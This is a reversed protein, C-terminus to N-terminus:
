SIFHHRNTRLDSHGAGDPPQGVAGVGTLAATAEWLQRRSTDLGSKARRRGVPLGSAAEATLASTPTRPRTRPPPTSPRSRGTSPTKLLVRLRNIRHRLLPRGLHDHRHRNRSCRACWGARVACDCDGSCSSPSSSSQWRLRLLGADTTPRTRWDLDALDLQGQRPHSTVSGVRRHHPRRAPHPRVARLLQDRDPSRFRRGHAPPIDMVRTTSWCTWPGRPPMSWRGPRGWIPCTSSASRWRDPWTPWPPGLRLRAGCPRGGAQGRGRGGRPRHDARHRKRGGDDRGHGDMSPLEGSTWKPM